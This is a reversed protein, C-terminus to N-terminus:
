NWRRKERLNNFDIYTQSKIIDKKLKSYYSSKESLYGFYSFFTPLLNFIFTSGIIFAPIGFVWNIWEAIDFSAVAGCMIGIGLFKLETNFTEIFSSTPNINLKPNANLLEKLTKYDMEALASPINFNYSTYQIKAM